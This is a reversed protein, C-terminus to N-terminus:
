GSSPAPPGAVTPPEDGGGGGGGTGRRQRVTYTTFAVGGLVLVILVILLWTPLFSGGGGGSGGHLNGVKADLAQQIIAPCNSYQGVDSQMTNLAQQLQTASYDHTLRGNKICNAVPPSIGAASATTVLPSSILFLGTVCLAPLLASRLRM